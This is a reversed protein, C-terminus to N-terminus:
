FWSGLDFLTDFPAAGAAASVAADVGGAAAAGPDLPAIADFMNPLDINGFPTM